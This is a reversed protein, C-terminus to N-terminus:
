CQRVPLASVRSLEETWPVVDPAAAAACLAERKFVKAAGSMRYQVSTVPRGIGTPTSGWLLVERYNGQAANVIHERVGADAAFLEAAVALTTTASHNGAFASRPELPFVEAGLIHLPRPDNVNALYVHADWGSLARDCLLGGIASVVGVVSAAAVELRFRPVVRLAAIHRDFAEDRDRQAFTPQSTM